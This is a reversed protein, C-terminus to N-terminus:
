FLKGKYMRDDRGSDDIKNQEINGNTVLMFFKPRMAMMAYLESGWSTQNFYKADDNNSLVSDFNYSKSFGGVTMSTLVGNLVSGGASESLSNSTARTMQKGILALEHAIYLSMAKEWLEGFVYYHIISNAIPYLKNFYKLGEDTKIYKSMQPIWMCFDDITYTPNTKSYGTSNNILSM